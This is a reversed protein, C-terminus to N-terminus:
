RWFCFCESAMLLPPLWMWKFTRWLSSEAQAVDMWRIQHSYSTEAFAQRLKQLNLM